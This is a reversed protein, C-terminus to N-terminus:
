PTVRGDAAVTLALAKGGGAMVVESLRVDNAFVDRTVWGEPDEVCANQDAVQLSSRVNVPADDVTVEYRDAGVPTMTMSEFNRWSMHAHTPGVFRACTEAERSLDPRRTTSGFFVVRLRVRPTGPAVPSSASCAPLLAAFTAAILTWALSRANM